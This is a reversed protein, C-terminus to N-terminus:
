RSTRCSRRGDCCRRLGRGCRVAPDVLDAVAVRLALRDIQLFSLSSSSTSISRQLLVVPVHPVRPPNQLLPRRRALQVVARALPQGLDRRRVGSAVRRSRAIHASCTVPPNGSSTSRLLQERVLVFVNAAPGIWSESSRSSGFKASSSGCNAAIASSRDTAPRAATDPRPAAALAADLSRQSTRAPRTRCMGLVGLSWLRGSIYQYAASGSASASGSRASANPRDHPLVIGSTRSNMSRRIPLKSRRVGTEGHQHLASPSDSSASSCSAIRCPMRVASSPGAARSAAPRIPPRRDCASPRAVVLRRAIPPWQAPRSTRRRPPSPRRQALQDRRGVASASAAARRARPAAPPSPDAAPQRRQLRKSSSGVSRSAASM